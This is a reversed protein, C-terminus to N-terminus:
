SIGNSDPNQVLPSSYLGIVNTGGDYLDAVVRVPPAIVQPPQTVRWYKGGNVGNQTVLTGRGEVSNQPFTQFQNLTARQASQAIDQPPRSRFHYDWGAMLKTIAHM